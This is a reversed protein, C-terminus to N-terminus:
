CFRARMLLLLLLLLLILLLILIRENPVEHDSHRKQFFQYETRHQFGCIFKERRHLFVGLFSPATSTM